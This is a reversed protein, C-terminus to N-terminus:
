LVPALFTKAAAGEITWEITSTGKGRVIAGRNAIWAEPVLVTDGTVMDKMYFPGVGAGNESETDLLFQTNLFANAASNQLLTLTISVRDDNTRARSVTGDAGAVSEWAPTQAEVSVFDGDNLGDEIPVGLYSMKVAKPNYTRTQNAM